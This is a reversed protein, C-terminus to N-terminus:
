LILLCIKFHSIIEKEKISERRQIDIADRPLSGNTCHPKSAVQVVSEFKCNKRDGLFFERSCVFFTPLMKLLSKKFFCILTFRSLSSVSLMDDSKDPLENCLM